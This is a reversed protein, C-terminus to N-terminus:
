ILPQFLVPGVGALITLGGGNFVCSRFSADITLAMITACADQDGGNLGTAVMTAFVPPVAMATFGTAINPLPFGQFLTLTAAYAVISASAAALTPDGAKFSAAFGQKIIEKGALATQVKLTSFMNVPDPLVPPTGAPNPFLFPGPAMIIEADDAYGIIADAIFGAVDNRSNKNEVEGSVGGSAPQTKIGKRFAQKIGDELKSANLAM